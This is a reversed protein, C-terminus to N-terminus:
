RAFVLMAALLCGGLFFAIKASRPMEEEPENYRIPNFKGFEKEYRRKIEENLTETEM